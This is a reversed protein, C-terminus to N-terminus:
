KKAALYHAPFVFDYFNQENSLIENEYITLSEIKEESKKKAKHIFDRIDKKLGYNEGYLLFYNCSSLSNLNKKIEYSKIIM